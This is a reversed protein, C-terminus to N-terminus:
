RAPGGRSVTGTVIGHALSYVLLHGGGPFADLDSGVSGQRLPGVLRADVPLPAGPAAADMSWYILPDPVDRYRGARQGEDRRGEFLDISRPLPPDLSGPVPRPRVSLGAILLVPLGVALSAFVTRHLTRLPRIM